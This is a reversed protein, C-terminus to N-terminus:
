GIIWAVLEGLTTYAYTYASGALPVMSSFEAYCLAACLSAIGAVIFSIAVAPGAYAAAATGTLVFVGAGITCGIGMTCLNIVGLARKMHSSGDYGLDNSPLPKRRWLSM